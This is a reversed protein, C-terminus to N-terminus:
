PRPALLTGTMLELLAEASRAAATEIAAFHAGVAAEAVAPSLCAARVGALRDALGAARAQELFAGVSRPSFFVVWEAPPTARLAGIADPAMAALPVADYLVARRARVGNQRLLAALDGARDSGCIHLVVGEFDRARAAATITTGLSVVDGDAEIPSFGATRAASATQRGVAFAPLGRAGIEVGAFARIGNASTFALAGVERLDISAKRHIIELVPSLIPKLGAAAAKRAFAAGDPEPRTVIARPITMGNPSEPSEAQIKGACRM